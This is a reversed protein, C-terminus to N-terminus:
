RKSGFLRRGVRNVWSTSRALEPLVEVLAAEGLDAVESVNVKDLIEIHSVQPRVIVEPADVELRYHAVARSNLDVARMFIDFTQAFNMRSIREVISRPLMSPIPIKLSAVPRDLPENLVVAVVPLGPALRRAISVPVPNLVGGDVLEMGGMQHPPFIAPIAITSLVAETLRGQSITVEGGSKLDAATVACPIKLDDFTRGGIVEGM